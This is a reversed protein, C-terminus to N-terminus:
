VGDGGAILRSTVRRRRLHLLDAQAPTRHAADDARWGRRAAGPDPEAGRAGGGEGGRGALWRRMVAEPRKRAACASPRSLCQKALPGLSTDSLTLEPALADLEM